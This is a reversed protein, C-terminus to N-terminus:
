LPLCDGFYYGTPIYYDSRSHLQARLFIKGKSNCEKVVQFNLCGVSRKSHRHFENVWVVSLTKNGIHIVHGYILYIPPVNTMIGLDLIPKKFWKERILDYARVCGDCYTFFVDDLTASRFSWCYGKIFFPTTSLQGWSKTIVNFSFLGNDMCLLITDGNEMVNIDMYGYCQSVYLPPEPLPSFMNLNPDFVEAWPKPLTQSNNSGFVFIKGHTAAAVPACRRSLMCFNEKRWTVQKTTNLHYFDVSFVDSCGRLRLDGPIHPNGGFMYVKSGLLASACSKGIGSSSRITCIPRINTFHETSTTTINRNNNNNGATNIHYWYINNSCCDSNFRLLLNNKLENTNPPSRIRFSCSSLSFNKNVKYDSREEKDDDKRRRTKMKDERGSEGHRSTKKKEERDSEGHRVRKGKNM